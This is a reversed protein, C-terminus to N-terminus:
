EEHAVLVETAELSRVSVSNGPAERRVPAVVEHKDIRLIVEIRQSVQDILSRGLGFVEKQLGTHERGGNRKYGRGYAGPLREADVMSLPQKPHWITAPRKRNIAVVLIVWGSTQVLLLDLPSRNM